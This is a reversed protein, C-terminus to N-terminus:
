DLFVDLLVALVRDGAFLEVEFVEEKDLGGSDHLRARGGEGRNGGEQRGELVFPVGERQLGELQLLLERLCPVFQGIREVLM